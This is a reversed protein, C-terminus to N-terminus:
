ITKSNGPPLTEEEYTKFLLKYLEKLYHVNWCDGTKDPNEQRDLSINRDIITKLLSAANEADKAPIVLDKYM